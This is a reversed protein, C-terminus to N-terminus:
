GTASRPRPSEDAELMAFSQRLPLSHLVSGKENEVDIRYRLDLCGTKIGHSLTDRAAALATSRAAELHPLEVGDPDLAVDGGDRLHFFYLAM